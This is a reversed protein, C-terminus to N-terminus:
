DLRWGLQFPIILDKIEQSVDSLSASSAQAFGKPSNFRLILHHDLASRAKELICFKLCSFGVVINKSIIPVWM